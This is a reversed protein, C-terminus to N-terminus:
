AILNGAHANSDEACASYSTIESAAECLSAMIDGKDRPAFM